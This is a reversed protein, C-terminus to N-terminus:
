PINWVEGPKLARFSLQPDNAKITNLADVPDNIGEDTLQFTGFHIGLSHRAKIDRHIQVAEEGNVHSSAMFWRPEYAGIPILALRIPGYKEGIDRFIDGGRYGTDGAFYIPEGGKPEIMYSAWLARNRDFPTRASWHYIPLTTINLTENIVTVDNWDTAFSQIEPYARTLITDNGLPVIIKPKDRDWLRKLTPIDMHDYHSHSILVIDIKPLDDFAVGPDHARKPGIFSFPSARKSWIPDTLINLGQTQILVTSHNVFIVRLDNGQVRNEAPKYPTGDVWEPWVVRNNSGFKWKLLDGRTKIVNGGINVFHTGNFNESVEGKYYQARNIGYLIALALGLGILIIILILSKM